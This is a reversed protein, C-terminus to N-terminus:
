LAAVGVAGAFMLSSPHGPALSCVRNLLFALTTGLYASAYSERIIDYLQDGQVRASEIACYQPGSLMTSMGGLVASIILASVAVVWAEVSAEYRVLINLFYLFVSLMAGTRAIVRWESPTQGEYISIMITGGIMLGVGVMLAAIPTQIDASAAVVSYLVFAGVTMPNLVNVHPLEMRHTNHQEVFDHVCDAAGAPLDMHLEGREPVVRAPTCEVQWVFVVCYLVLSVPLVIGRPWAVIGAAFGLADGWVGLGAIGGFLSALQSATQSEEMMSQAALTELSFVAAFTSCVILAPTEPVMAVILLFCMRAVTLGAAVSLPHTNHM